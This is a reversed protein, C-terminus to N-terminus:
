KPVYCTEEGEVARAYRSLIQEAMGRRKAGDPAGKGAATAEEEALPMVYPEIEKFTWSERFAFLRSFYGELSTAARRMSEGPLYTIRVVGDVGEEAVAVGALLREDPPTLSTGPMRSQWETLFDVLLRPERSSLLLCHAIFVAIKEPCLEATGGPTYQQGRVGLRHLCHRVAVEVDAEAPTDADLERGRHEVIHEVVEKEKVKIGGEEDAWGRETVLFLVEEAVEAYDEEEMIAVRGPEVEVADRMATLMRRVEGVSRQCSKGLEGLTIGPKRGETRARKARRRGLTFRRARVLAGRLFFFSTRGEAAGHEECGLFGSSGVAVGAETGDSGGAVSTPVHTNGSGDVLIVANSSEVVVLRHTTSDSALAACPPPIDSSSPIPDSPPPIISLVHGSTLRSLLTPPLEILRLDDHSDPRPLSLVVPIHPPFSV